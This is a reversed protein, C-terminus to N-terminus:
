SLHNMLDKFIIYIFPFCKKGFFMEEELIVEQLLCLFCPAGTAFHHSTKEVLGVEEQGLSRPM